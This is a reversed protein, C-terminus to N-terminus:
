KETTTTAYIVQVIDVVQLLGILSGKIISGAPPPIAVTTEKLVSLSVILGAVATSRVNKARKKGARKSTPM